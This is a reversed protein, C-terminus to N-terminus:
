VANKSIILESQIKQMSKNLIDKERNLNEIDRRDAEGQKKNLMIEREMVSVQQRLRERSPPFTLIM